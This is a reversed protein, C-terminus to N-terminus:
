RRLPVPPHMADAFEACFKELQVRADGLGSKSRLDYNTIKGLLDACQRPDLQRMAERFANQRDGFIRLETMIASPSMGRARMAHAQCLRRCLDAMFYFVLQSPQRAYDLLERLESLSREADGTLMAEQIAWADDESSRGVMVEVDKLTIPGTTDGSIALKALESALRSLNTGIKELLLSAAKPEIKRDHVTEVHKSIFQACEAYKPEECKILQGIKKVQKEFNGTNIKESRLLLTSTSEPGELYRVLSERFNSIFTDAKDVIILKHQMMLGISRLEDFVDALACIDGEFRLVDVDEHIDRLVRTLEASHEQILFPEKGYIIM